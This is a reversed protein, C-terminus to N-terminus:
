KIGKRIMEDDYDTTRINPLKEMSMGDSYAVVRNRGGNKATYLAIDAQSLLKRLEGKESRVDVGISVTVIGGVNGEHRLKLEEVRSRLKDALEILRKKSPAPSAICVFEEGGFRYFSLNEEKGFQAFLRGLTRLCEDGEEHGYSDNFDKFHDVDIMLLGASERVFGSNELAILREFLSRRNRLGTLFDTHDSIIAKRKLEVNELRSNRTFEGIFLGATTFGLCILVDDTRVSEDKFPVVLTLFLVAFAVIFTDIRLSKDLTIIPAIALCFILVVSSTKPTLMASIIASYVIIITYSFYLMFLPSVKEEFVRFLVLSAVLVALIVVYSVFLHRYKEDFFTIVAFLAVILSAIRYLFIAIKRNIGDIDKRNESIVRRQWDTYSSFNKTLKSM